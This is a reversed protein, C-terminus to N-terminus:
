SLIYLDKSFHPLQYREFEKPTGSQGHGRLDINLISYGQQLFFRLENRWVTCNSGVGHLLVLTPQEKKNVSKFRKKKFHQYSIICGDFSTIKKIVKNDRVFSM